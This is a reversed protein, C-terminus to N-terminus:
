EPTVPRIKMKDKLQVEGPLAVVDGETVGSVVEYSVPSAIGVHIERQHLRNDEVVYVWRRKGDIAVAGRPVVLVDPRERLLIRVDVTINPILELKSNDVSCLTEGVSRTGHPVVEKPIMETHGTWVRDPLADWTIEVTQNEELSGLEPEDIFARVRVKHLDAMEALLDGAHVFDGAHVPLSYLTGDAPAIARASNVKESLDRVQDRSQEVLLADQESDLAVQRRFEDLAKEAQQADAEAAALQARNDALEAPTAAQQAVLKTLAANQQRLADRRADASAVAGTVKAREDARGGAQASRLADQQASLQARAQNLAALEAADDLELLLQGRHVPQGENVFVKTVFTDMEARMSYPSIPEVKGNSSISTSLNERTIPVVAVRPAPRRANLILLVVTLAVAAGLLLWLRRKLALRMGGSVRELNGSSGSRLPLVFL